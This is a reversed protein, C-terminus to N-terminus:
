GLFLVKCTDEGGVSHAHAHTCAHIRIRTRTHVHVHSRTHTHLAGFGARRPDRLSCVCGLRSLTGSQFGTEALEHSTGTGTGTAVLVKVVDVPFVQEPKGIRLYGNVTM